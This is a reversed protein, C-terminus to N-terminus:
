KPRYRKRFILVIIGVISAGISLGSIFPYLVNDITSSRDEITLIFLQMTIKEKKIHAITTQYVEGGGSIIIKIPHGIEEIWQATIKVHYELLAEFIVVTINTPDSFMEYPNSQTSTSNEEPITVLIETDSMLEWTLIQISAPAKLHLPGVWVLDPYSPITGYIFIIQTSFVITILGILGLQRILEKM